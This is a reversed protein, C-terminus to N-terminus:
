RQPTDRDLYEHHISRVVTAFVNMWYQGGQPSQWRQRNLWAVMPQWSEEWSVGGDLNALVMALSYRANGPFHGHVNVLYSDLLNLAKQWEDTTQYAEIEAGSLM